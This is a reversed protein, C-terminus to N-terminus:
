DELDQARQVPDSKLTALAADVLGLVNEIPRLLTLGALPLM